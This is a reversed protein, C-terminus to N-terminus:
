FDMKLPIKFFVKTGTVLKNEVIEKVVFKSKKSLTKIREETVKIAISKHNTTKKSKKSQQIGIGNDEISCLLFEKKTSFHLTIIGNKITKIGHKISNEIFPQILMPPILVEEADFDLETNIIYEFPNPSMQQELEIYNKLISIEEKLSIEEQRSNHLVGRLLTAFKSITSNLETSKGSNGLAKIGNLVNFVFHPNMQLQLAKQELSLLHYKMELKEVKARNKAKIKKIYIYLISSLLLILIGISVQQFWSKQYLPKDIFFHFKISSSELNNIKSQASFTYNGASLNALNISNSSTWPSFKNNLKYRYKVEKPANIDVTKYTFSIHNQNPKLQLIKTYKNINISDLSQYVIDINQFAIKPKKTVKNKGNLKYIGRNNTAIWINKQSDQYVTNIQNTKLTNYKNVRKIFAFNKDLVEIGEDKSVIWLEDNIKVIDSIKKPSSTISQAINNKILKVGNNYTTAICNQNNILVSTYNDLDIRKLITPNILKDLKWLAKNTAIWYFKGDFELDNISNLDIQFNTRIPSLFDERVRLIGKNTGLFTHKSTKLICNIKKEEFNIFKNYVKISLGKDTGILLTNNEKLLVRTKNSILNNKTTLNTFDTGDFRLLGKHTAFWLYGINDQTIDTIKLSPLGDNLTYNEPPNLQAVLKTAIVSFLIFLTLKYYKM